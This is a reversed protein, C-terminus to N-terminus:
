KGCVTANKNAINGVGEKELESKDRKHIIELVIFGTMRQRSRSCHTKRSKLVAIM